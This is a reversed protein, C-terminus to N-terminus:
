YRHLGGSMFDNMVDYSDAFNAFVERVRGEKEGISVSEYGFHTTPGSVYSGLARPPDAAGGASSRHLHRSPPSAAARGDDDHAPSSIIRPIRAPPPLPLSARKV